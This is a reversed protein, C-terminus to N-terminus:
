SSTSRGARRQRFRTGARGAGRRPDWVSAVVAAVAVMALVQTATQAADGSALLYLVGATGLSVAALAGLVQQRRDGAARGLGLTAALAALGGVGGVLAVGGTLAVAMLVGTRRRRGPTLPRPAPAAGGRDGASVLIVAFLVLV